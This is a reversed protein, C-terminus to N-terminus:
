QAAPIHQHRCIPLFPLPPLLSRWAAPSLLTACAGMYKRLSFSLQFDEGTELTFPNDRWMTHLWDKRLFWLGGTLDVAKAVQPRYEWQIHYPHQVHTVPTEVNGWHGKMGILGYYRRHLTYMVHFANAVADSGPICDDDFFALHTSPAQLALQFRGFYKLQPDGSVFKVKAKSFKRTVAELAAQHPSSFTTIWVEVPPHSQSLLGVIMRELFAVRRYTGLIATWTFPGSQSGDRGLSYASPTAMIEGFSEELIGPDPPQTSCQHRRAFREHAPLGAFPTSAYV